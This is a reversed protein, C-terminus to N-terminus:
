VSCILKWQCQLAPLWNMVPPEHEVVPVTLKNELYKLDEGQVNGPLSQARLVAGQGPERDSQTGTARHAPYAPLYSGHSARHHTLAERPPTHVDSQYISKELLM